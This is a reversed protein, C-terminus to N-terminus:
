HYIPKVNMSDKTKLLKYAEVAKTYSEMIEQKKTQKYMNLLRQACHELLAALKYESEILKKDSQM